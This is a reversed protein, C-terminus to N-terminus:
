ILVADVTTLDCYITEQNLEKKMEQVFPMIQVMAAAKDVDFFSLEIKITRERIIGGNDNHTYVGTADTITGFGFNKIVAQYIMSKAAATKIVQKKVDKDNLGICITVKTTM